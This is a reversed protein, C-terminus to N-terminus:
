RVEASTDVHVAARGARDRLWVRQRRGHAPAREALPAFSWTDSLGLLLVQLGPEGLEHLESGSGM